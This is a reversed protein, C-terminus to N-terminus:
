NIKNQTVYVNYWMLNNKYVIKKIKKLKIQLYAYCGKVIYM